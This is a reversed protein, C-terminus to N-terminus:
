LRHVRHAVLDQLHHFLEARIGIDFIGLRDPNQATHGHRAVGPVTLLPVVKVIPVASTFRGSADVQRLCPIRIGAARRYRYRDDIGADQRGMRVNRARGVKATAIVHNSIHEGSIVAIPTITVRAIGAIGNGGIFAAGPFWRFRIAPVARV